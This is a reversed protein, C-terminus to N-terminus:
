MLREKGAGPLEDALVIQLYCVACEELDNSGADRQLVQRRQPTMCVIHCTEHLPSHVPTDGRVFVRDAMIGAGPEGWYSGNITQEDPILENSLGYKGLLEDVSDFTLDSILLM